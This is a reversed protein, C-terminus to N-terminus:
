PTPPASGARRAAADFFALQERFQRHEDSLYQEDLNLM